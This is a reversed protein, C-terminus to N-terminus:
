ENSAFNPVHGYFENNELTVELLRPLEALSKPLNGTFSNNALHVKMLVEMGQFVDDQIEGSFNNYSFFVSRLRGLKNIESISRRFWNRTNNACPPISTNWNFLADTNLLSQKFKLLIEGD